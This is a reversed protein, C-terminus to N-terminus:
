DCVPLCAESHPRVQAAALLAHKLLLPCFQAAEDIGPQAALGAVSGAVYALRRRAELALRQQIIDFATGGSLNRCIRNLSSESLALQRAYRKVPWHKQYHTEVLLRFRRLRDLEYADPPQM